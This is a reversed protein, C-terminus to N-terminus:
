SGRDRYRWLAPRRRLTPIALQGVDGGEVGGVGDGDGLGEGLPFAPEGQGVELFDGGLRERSQELLFVHLEREDLREFQDGLGVAARGFVSGPPLRGVRGILEYNMFGQAAAPHALCVLIEEM